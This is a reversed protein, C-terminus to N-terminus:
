HGLLMNRGDSRAGLYETEQKGIASRHMKAVIGPSCRQECSSRSLESFM